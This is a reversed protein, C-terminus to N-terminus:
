AQEMRFILLRGGIFGRAGSPSLFHRGVGHSGPNAPIRALIHRSLVRLVGLHISMRNQCGAFPGEASGIRGADTFLVMSKRLCFGLPALRM